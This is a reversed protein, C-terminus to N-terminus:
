DLKYGPYEFRLVLRLRENSSFYISLTKVFQNPYYYYDATFPTVVANNATNGSNRWSRSYSKLILQDPNLLQDSINQEGSSSFLHPNDRLALFLLYDHDIFAKQQSKANNYTITASSETYSFANIERVVRSSDLIGAADRFYYVHAFVVPTDKPIAFMKVESIRGNKDYFFKGNITDTLSGYELVHMSDMRGLADYHFDYDENYFGGRSRMTLTEVRGNTNYGFQSYISDYLYDLRKSIIKDIRGDSLYYISDSWTYFAINNPYFGYYVRNPKTSIDVSHDNKDKGCAAVFIIILLAISRLFKPNSFM